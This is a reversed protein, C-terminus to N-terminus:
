IVAMIKIPSYVKCTAFLLQEQSCIWAFHIFAHIAQTLNENAPGLNDSGMFKHVPDDYHGCPLLPTALFGLHPLTRRGSAATRVM